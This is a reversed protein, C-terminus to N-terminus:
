FMIRKISIIQKFWPWYTDQRVMEEEREWFHLTQATWAYGFPYSSLNEHEEFLKAEPYRNFRTHVNKMLALARERTKKARDLIETFAKSERKGRAQELLAQRLDYAHSIRLFTVDMMDKLEENKIGTIPPQSKIANALVKVRKELLEPNKRLDRLLTREHTIFGVMPIEDLLNSSSMEELAGQRKVFETQFALIPKWVDKSEGLLTLGAMPDGRHEANALLAVTWDILWYGVEQGTSFNLHGNGGWIELADMDKSRAVLYDTLLLPVDIDMAIFYSTEPYYWTPRSKIQEQTFLTMDKFDKRNYVPAVEDELAFYMVTHPLVGVTKNAFKPLFNFNGMETNHNENAAAHIKIFVSRGVKQLIEDAINMWEITQKADTSTFESSGVEITMFDFPLDEILDSVSQKLDARKTKARSFITSWKSTRGILRYAKQQQLTFSVDIGFSVGLNQGYEILDSIGAKLTKRDQELLVVQAINQGNRALWRMSERAIEKQGMLFGHLWESPHMTHFHFGRYMFRPTWAFTKGCAKKMDALKPSIQIRPHPFLFGLKQLGLYFAAGWESEPATVNLQFKGSPCAVQVNASPGVKHSYSVLAPDLGAKTLIASLDAKIADDKAVHLKVTPKTASLQPNTTLTPAVNQEVSIPAAIATKIKQKEDASVTALFSLSLM